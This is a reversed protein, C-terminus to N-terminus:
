RPNSVTCCPSDSRGHNGYWDTTWQWVNGAMDHLGYGNAPFSAVPATVEFGDECLNSNPFDGQWINAMHVGGPTLEEGWVFEAGDLGGRAAFEWEAETPLEKNSWRAYAQADEFAIHVVPHDGLGAISSEPGYPHRWDAGPLY